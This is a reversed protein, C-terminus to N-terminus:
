IRAVLIIPMKTTKSLSIMIHMDVGKSKQFFTSRTISTLRDFDLRLTGTPIHQRRKIIHADPFNRNIAQNWRGVSDSYIEFVGGSSRQFEFEFLVHGLYYIRDNEITM